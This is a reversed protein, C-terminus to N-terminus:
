FSKLFEILKLLKRDFDILDFSLSTDWNSFGNVVYAYLFM